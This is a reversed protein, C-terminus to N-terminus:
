QSVGSVIEQSPTPEWTQYASLPRPAHSAGTARRRSSITCDRTTPDMRSDRSVVDHVALIRSSGAVSPSHLGGMAGHSPGENWGQAGAGTVCSALILSQAVAPLQPKWTKPQKSVQAVKINVRRYEGNHELMGLSPLAARVDTGTKPHKTLFNAPNWLGKVKGIGIKKAQLAGQIYFESVDLRRLKTGPGIRKSAQMAASSDTWLKPRAIRLGFDLKGLDCLFIAERAGRSAGRILEHSSTRAADSHRDARRSRRLRGCLLRHQTPDGSM